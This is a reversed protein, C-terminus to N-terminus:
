MGLDLITVYSYGSGPNKKIEVTYRAESREEAHRAICEIKAQSQAQPESVVAENLM